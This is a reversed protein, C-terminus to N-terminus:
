ESYATGAVVDIVRVLQTTTLQISVCFVVNFLAVNNVYDARIARLVKCADMPKVVWVFDNKNSFLRSIECIELGYWAHKNKNSHM